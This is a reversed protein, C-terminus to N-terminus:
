KEVGELLTKEEIESWKKRMKHACAPSPHPKRDFPPLERKGVPRNDDTVWAMGSRGFLHCLMIVMNCM